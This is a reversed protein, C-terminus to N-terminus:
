LSGHTTTKKRGYSSVGCTHSGFTAIRDTKLYLEIILVIYMSVLYKYLCVSFAILHVQTLVVKKFQSGLVGNHDIAWLAM